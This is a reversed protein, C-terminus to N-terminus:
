IGSGAFKAGEDSALLFGRATLSDRHAEIWRAGAGPAAQRGYAAPDAPSAVYTTGGASEQVMGSSAM